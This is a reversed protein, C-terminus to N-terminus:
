WKVSSMEHKDCVAQKEAKHISHIWKAFPKQTWNLVISDFGIKLNMQLIKEACYFNNNHSSFYVTKSPFLAKFRLFIFFEIWMRCPFRCMKVCLVSVKFLILFFYNLPFICKWQFLCIFAEISEIYNCVFRKCENLRPQHLKKRKKWHNEKLNEKYECSNEQSKKHNERM